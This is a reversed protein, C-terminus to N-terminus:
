TGAPRTLRLIRSNALTTVVETRSFGRQRLQDLRTRTESGPSDIFYVVSGSGAELRAWFYPDATGEQKLYYILPSMEVVHASVRDTEQLVGILYAAAESADRYGVYWPVRKPDATSVFAWSNAVAIGIALLLALRGALGPRGLARGLGLLGAFALGLYVPLLFLFVM